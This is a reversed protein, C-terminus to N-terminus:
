GSVPEDTREGSDAQEASADDRESARRHLAHSHPNLGIVTANVGRDGFRTVIRDLAGVATSDWVHAASLDIVVNPVTDAYDFERDLEHSSAFFLAGTVSYMRTDGDVRLSSTVDVLHAVRHAFLVASILVGVVVGIALNKTAVVIAVTVLMVATESLPRQRWARPTISKWDFTAQAVIVMVAALAAMPIIKVVPALVLILILLYVGSAFTSLRTRGGNRLNMMSQGILACGAMGGLFGTAVNAIGQGRAEINKDSRTNTISDIFQATMLSEMLGVLAITISYPAIVALTHFTLPVDPLAWSPLSTPLV